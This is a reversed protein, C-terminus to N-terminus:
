RSIRNRGAAKASYLAEDATKVLAIPNPDGLTPKIAAFGASITVIGPPNGSHTIALSEILIRAREAMSEAGDFDTEPLLIVIEEGGYRAVFDAGRAPLKKLASGILTLCDDGAPHGYIDNYQKFRDVDIMILAISTRNRIARIYEQKLTKDFKRRNSLGTLGDESALKELEKNLSELELKARQLEGESTQRKNIQRILYAGFMSLLTLLLGCIVILRFTKERWSAFIEEPGIGVAVILPYKELHHYSFLRVKQDIISPAMITAVPGKKRYADFVRGKSVNSGLISEIFPRRVLLTGDDKALFIVGSHGIDIEAYFYQFFDLRLTAVVVGAFNGKSNNLRRSVTVIFEGTTKSHIAPGIYPERDDKNQHYRFYEREGFNINKSLVAESSAVSNGREDLISLAQFIQLEAVLQSLFPNLERLPKGDGKALEVSHVLSIVINDASQISDSAHQALARALNSTEAESLSLEEKYEQWSTWAVVSTLSLTVLLLFLVM